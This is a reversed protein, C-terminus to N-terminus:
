KHGGYFTCNPIKGDYDHLSPLSIYLFFAHHMHLAKTKGIWGTAKQRERQLNYDDDHCRLTRVVSITHVYGLHKKENRKRNTEYTELVSALFLARSTSREASFCIRWSLSCSTPWNLVIKNFDRYRSLELENVKDFGLSSKQASNSLVMNLNLFLFFFNLQRKNVDEMFRSIRFKGTTTTCHRCLFTCFFRSARASNNNQRNLRNSKSTRTTSQLRRRPM